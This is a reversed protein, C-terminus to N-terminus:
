CWRSWQYHYSYHSDGYAEIVWVRGCVRCRDVEAWCEVPADAHDVRSLQELDGNGGPDPV